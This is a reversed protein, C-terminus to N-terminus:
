GGRTAASWSIRFRRLSQELQPGLPNGTVLVDGVHNALAQLLLLETRGVPRSGRAVLALLGLLRTEALIPAALLVAASSVEAGQLLQARRELAVRGLAGQGLAVEEPLEAASAAVAARRLGLGDPEAVYVAGADLDYLSVLGTVM